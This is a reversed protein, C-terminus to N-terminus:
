KFHRNPVLPFSLYVLNLKLSNYIWQPQYIWALFMSGHEWKTNYNVLGLNYEVPDLIGSPHYEWGKSHVSYTNELFVQMYRARLSCPYVTQTWSKSHQSTKSANLLSTELVNKDPVCFLCPATLISGMSVHDIKRLSSVAM